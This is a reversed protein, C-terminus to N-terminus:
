WCAGDPTVIRDCFKAFANIESLADESWDIDTIVADISQTEIDEECQQWPKGLLTYRDRVLVPLPPIKDSQFEQDAQRVAEKFKLAPNEIVLQAVRRLKEKPRQCSLEHLPEIFDKISSQELLPLLGAEIDKAIKIHQQVWSEKKDIKSVMDAVFSKDDTGRKRGGGTKRSPGAGPHLTEYCRKAELLRLGIQIPTLQSRLETQIETLRKDAQAQEPTVPKVTM